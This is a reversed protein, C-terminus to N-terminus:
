IFIGMWVATAMAALLLKKETDTVEEADEPNMKGILFVSYVLIAVVGSAAVPRSALIWLSMLGIVGLYLVAPYRAGRIGFRDVALVVSTRKLPVARRDAELDPIHHVMVWAMCWLANVLANQWGWVPITELMLWPAALGLFLMSPFLSVWEGLFPHYAFRFPKLSYTAAGWIGVVILIALEFQGAGALVAAILALLLTATLGMKKLMQLSMVGTQIVRSGGSLLAPSFQDTGSEFDTIDNFVHTLLGHILFAGIILLVLLMLLAAASFEYFLLLPLWTSIVTAVSSGVVAIVRLLMGMGKFSLANQGSM